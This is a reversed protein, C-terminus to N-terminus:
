GGSKVATKLRFITMWDDSSKPTIMQLRRSVAYSEANQGDTQL